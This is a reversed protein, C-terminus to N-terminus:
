ACCNIDTANKQEECFCSRCRSAAPAADYHTVHRARSSKIQPARSSRFASPRWKQQDERHTNHQARLSKIRPARLSRFASPRWKQQDERDTTHQARLSKIEPARLSLLAPPREKQHDGDPFSKKNQSGPDQLALPGLDTYQVMNIVKNASVGSHTEWHFLTFLLVRTMHMRQLAENIWFFDFTVRLSQRFAM